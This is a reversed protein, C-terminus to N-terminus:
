RVLLVAGGALTSGVLMALGFRLWDSVGFMLTVVLCLYVGSLALAVDWAGYSWVGALLLGAAVGLGVGPLPGPPEQRRPDQDHPGTV